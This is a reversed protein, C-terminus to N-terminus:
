EQLNVRYGSHRTTDGAPRLQWVATVPSVPGAWSVEVQWRWRRTCPQSSAVELSGQSSSTSAQSSWWDSYQNHVAGACVQTSFRSTTIPSRSIESECHHFRQNAREVLFHSYYPCQSIERLGTSLEIFFGGVRVLFLQHLHQGAGLWCLRFM